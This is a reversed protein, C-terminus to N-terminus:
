RYKDVNRQFPKRSENSKGPFSVFFPILHNFQSYSACACDIIIELRTMMVKVVQFQLKSQMALVFIMVPWMTM